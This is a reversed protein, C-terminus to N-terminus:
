ELQIDLEDLKRYLSSLSMRLAEAASKKDGDLKKLVNEIHGKEYAQVAEKFNDTL